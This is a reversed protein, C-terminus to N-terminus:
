VPFRKFLLHFAPMLCLFVVSSLVYPIEVEHSLLNAENTVIITIVAPNEFFLTPLLEHTIDTVNNKYM